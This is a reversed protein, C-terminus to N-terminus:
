LKELPKQHSILFLPGPLISKPKLRALRQTDAIRAQQFDM